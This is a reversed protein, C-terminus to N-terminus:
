SKLFRLVANLKGSSKLEITKDFKLRYAELLGKSHDPFFEPDFFALRIDQLVSELVTGTRIWKECVEQRFRVGMLNFGAIRHNTSDYVLRISKEGKPDEWYLSDLPTQIQPPVTGYVQYEIDFFKASNFWIGPDYPKAKGSLNIALTEGMKRGSYWIAEVAKRGSNVSTLQACDGIAYVNSINTQLFENVLIGKETALPTEKVLDINPSVGATIGVYQCPIYENTDTMVAAVKGSEDQISKLQTNLRLDIDYKLIHKSIMAAEQQPLVSSWYDRERVLMTVPIKRSHFMEALEIGILGGGVVVARKLDKSINEIYDLDQKSYFGSVGNLEQGPWGYKNSKSGLALVLRDYSLSNKNELHVLKKEFDISVVKSYLLDIRNQSWFSREYPELDKMRLHGMYVYMLATRSFFYESEESVIQIEDNTMKRLWHACSVGAIGNGIILTKNM